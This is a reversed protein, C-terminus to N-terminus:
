AAQKLEKIKTKYYEIKEILEPRSYKFSRTLTAKAELLDFALQGFRKVYGAKYSEFSGDPQYNDYLCQKNLNEEDLDVGSFVEAKFLHGCQWTVGDEDHTFGCSICGKSKDRLLVFDRAAAKATKYLDPYPLHHLDEASGKIIKVKCKNCNRQIGYPQFPDGCNPCKKIKPISKQM